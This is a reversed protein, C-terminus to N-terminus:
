RVAPNKHFWISVRLAGFACKLLYLAILLRLGILKDIPIAAEDIALAFLALSIILLAWRGSLLRPVIGVVFALGAYVGFLAVLRPIDVAETIYAMIPSGLAIVAFVTMITDLYTATQRADAEDLVDPWFFWRLSERFWGENRKTIKRRRRISLRALFIGLPLWVILMALITETKM